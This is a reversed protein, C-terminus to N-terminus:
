LYEIFKLYFLVLCVSCIWKFRDSVVIYEQISDCQDLVVMEPNFKLEDPSVPSLFGSDADSHSLASLPRPKKVKYQVNRSPVPGPKFLVYNSEIPMTRNRLLLDNPVLSGSRNTRLSNTKHTPLSGVTKRVSVLPSESFDHAYFGDRPCEELEPDITFYNNEKENNDNYIVEEVPEEDDDAEDTSSQVEKRDPVTETRKLEKENIFDVSPDFLCYNELHPIGGKRPRVPINKFLSSTFEPKALIDDEMESKTKNQSPNYLVYENTNTPLTEDEESCKLGQFPFFGRSNIRSICNRIELVREKYTSKQRDNLALQSKSNLEEQPPKPLSSPNIAQCPAPQPQASKVSVRGAGTKILGKRQQKIGSKIQQRESNECSTLQSVGPLPPPRPPDRYPPPPKSNISHNGIIETSEYCPPFDCFLEKFEPSCPDHPYNSDSRNEPTPNQQSHSNESKRSNSICKLGRGSSPKTITDVPRPIRLKTPKGKLQLPTKGPLQQSDDRKQHAIRRCEDRSREDNSQCNGQVVIEQPSIHNSPTM